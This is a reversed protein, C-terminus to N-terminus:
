AEREEICFTIPRKGVVRFSEGQNISTYISVADPPADSQLWDCEVVLVRRKRPKLILRPGILWNDSRSQNVGNQVSDWFEEGNHPDRYDEGGLRERGAAKIDAEVEHLFRNYPNDPAVVVGVQGVINPGIEGNSRLLYEGPRVPDTLLAVRVIKAGLPVGPIQSM